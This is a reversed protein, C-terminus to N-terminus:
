SGINLGSKKFVQILNENWSHWVEFESLEKIFKPKYLGTVSSFNAKWIAVIIQCKEQMTDLQSLEDWLFILGTSCFPSENEKRLFRITASNEQVDPFDQGEERWGKGELILLMEEKKIHHKSEPLIEQIKNERDVPFPSTIVKHSNTEDWWGKSSLTQRCKSKEWQM